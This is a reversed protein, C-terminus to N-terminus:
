PTPALRVAFPAIFGTAGQGPEVPVAAGSAYTVSLLGSPDEDLSEPRLVSALAVQYERAEFGSAYEATVVGYESVHVGILHSASRGNQTMWYISSWDQDPDGDPLANISRSFDFEITQAASAGAFTVTHAHAAPERLQGGDFLLTGGALEVVQDPAAGNAVLHWTWVGDCESAFYLTVHQPNTDVDYLITDQSFTSTGGPATADFNGRCTLRDFVIELHVNTTAQGHDWRPVGVPVLERAPDSRSEMSYGVLQLGWPSIMAGDARIVMDARRTLCVREPPANMMFYGPGDIVEGDSSPGAPEPTVFGGCRMENDSDTWPGNVGALFDEGCGSLTLGFIGISLVAYMRRM